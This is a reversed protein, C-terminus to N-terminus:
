APRFTRGGHVVLGYIVLVDVAFLALSWYSYAPIFLLQVLANIGALLVGLSRANQNKLFVGLGAAAQVLGNLLLVWGYSDLDGFVYNTRTVFFHSNSIAAIGEIFNACGLLVLMTGAFIIWGYGRDDQGLRLAEVRPMYEPGAAELSV